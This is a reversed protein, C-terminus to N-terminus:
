LHFVIGASYRFNNQHGTFGFTDGHKTYLYDFQGLRIWVAPMAKVDVGGGLAMAFSTESLGSVALRNGGFLAHVFPKTKEGRFNVSPGFVFTYSSISPAGAFPTGYNGSVDGVLGLRGGVNFQLAGDWGSYSSKVGTDGQTDLHLLQYGGFVEAPTGEAAMAALSWTLVLVAVVAFKKM